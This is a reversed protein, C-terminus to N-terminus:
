LRKKLLENIDPWNENVLEYDITIKKKVVRHGRCTPCVKYHTEDDDVSVREEWSILGTGSCRPCIIIETKNDNYM